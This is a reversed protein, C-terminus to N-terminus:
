FRRGGPWHYRDARHASRLTQEVPNGHAPRGGLGGRQYHYNFLEAEVRRTRMMEIREGYRSIEGRTTQYTFFFVSGITVIIVLAFAALLRFNLSHLM